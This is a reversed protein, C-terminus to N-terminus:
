DPLTYAILRNGLNADIGAAGGTAVVLYQKGDKRLRYTMPIAYTSYPLHVSWLTKGTATHFARM